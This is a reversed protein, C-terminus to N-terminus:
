KLNIAHISSHRIVFIVISSSMPIYTLLAPVVSGALCHSRVDRAGGRRSHWGGRRGEARRQQDTLTLDKVMMMMRMM